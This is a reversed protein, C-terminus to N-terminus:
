NDGKPKRPITLFIKEEVELKLIKKAEELNGLEIENLCASMENLLWRVQLVLDKRDNSFVSDPIRQNM